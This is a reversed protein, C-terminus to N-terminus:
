RLGFVSLIAMIVVILGILYILGNMHPETLNAEWTCVCFQRLGFGNRLRTFTTM